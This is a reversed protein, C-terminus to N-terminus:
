YNDASPEHEVLQLFARRAAAFDQSQMARTGQMRLNDTTEAQAPKACHSLGFFAFLLVAGSARKRIM